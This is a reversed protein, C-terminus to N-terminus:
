IPQWPSTILVYIAHIDGLNHKGKKYVHLRWYYIFSSKVDQFAKNVIGQRICSLISEIAWTRCKWKKLSSLKVIVVEPDIHFSYIFAQIFYEFIQFSFLILTKKICKPNDFRLVFIATIELSSLNGGLYWCLLADTQIIGNSLFHM